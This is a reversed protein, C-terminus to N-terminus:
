WGSVVENLIDETLKEIASSIAADRPSTGVGPEYIGYNSFTKEWVQKKLTLDQYAVKISLTVKRKSVTEGPAVVYPEDPMSLVVGELSANAVTKEAIAM